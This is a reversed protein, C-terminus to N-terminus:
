GVCGREGTCLGGPVDALNLLDDLAAPSLVGKFRQLHDEFSGGTKLTRVMIDRSSLAEVM